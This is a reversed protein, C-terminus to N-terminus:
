CTQLDPSAAILSRLANQRMIRYPAKKWNSTAVTDCRQAFDNLVNLTPRSLTPNGWFALAAKVADGPSEATKTARWRPTTAPISFTTDGLDRAGRDLPRPLHGHRALRRRGLRQRQAPLVPAARHARLGVVLREHQRRRQAHAATRGLARDAAQGHASGQLLHPAAPDGAAGAGHPLRQSRLPEEPGQADQGEGTHSQLLEVAEQRYFTPHDPHKLCLM